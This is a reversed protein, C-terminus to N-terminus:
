NWGKTATVGIPKGNLFARAKVVESKNIVFPKTYLNSANTPESGDLTYYIDVGPMDTRITAVKSYIDDKTITIFVNYLNKSYNVGRADLRGFHDQLREVFNEWNKGSPNSWGSEAVALARPYAMYEVRQPNEMYETWVCAEVGKIYQREEPKLVEPVPNYDYVEKLPVFHGMCLKETDPDGQYYDMYYKTHPAMVAYHSQQAAKIGGEEGLWSMVTANPALGGQLIEDWGIISRGKSNIFKEMRQIFYSQLEFEDKLGHKRIMMQCHPCKKWSSKPCEDGGIHILQSPFLEMVETLVDELFAFTEDKPCYVQRFVGWRTALEYSEELGCSLHPFCAIAARAHGPMEIEPLVTICRKAAYEVIERIEQQTYFGGYPTGDYIGSYLTGIVTEKRVSGKETLEPYKKIEIRWGQDETLHWHFVNFKHMAMLDIYRKIFTTDFFHSCVDLHMGRYSFRPSDEITACPVSWKCNRKENSYIENPLMQLLTQVAYFAGNAASSAVVIREPTIDLKYEEQKLSNDKRFIIRNEGSTATPDDASTQECGFKFGAAKGFREQLYSVANLFTSDDSYETITTKSNFTFTGETETIKQPQPIISIERVKGERCGLLLAVAVICWLIKKM